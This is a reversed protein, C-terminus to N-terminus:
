PGAEGVVAAAGRGPDLDEIWVPEQSGNKWAQSSVPVIMQMCMPEDLWIGDVDLSAGGATAAVSLKPLAM